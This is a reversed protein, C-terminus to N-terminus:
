AAPLFPNIPKGVEDPWNVVTEITTQSLTVITHDLGGGIGYCAPLEPQTIHEGKTLRFWSLAKIAGERFDESGDLLDDPPTAQTAGIVSGEVYKLTWAPIDTHIDFTCFYLVTPGTRDSIGAIMFEAQRELKEGKKISLYSDLRDMTDDFSGCADAIGAIVTAVASVNYGRGAVVLPASASPWIKRGLSLVRGDDHYTARDTMLEVRDPFISIAYASM